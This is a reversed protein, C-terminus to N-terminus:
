GPLNKLSGNFAQKESNIRNSWEQQASESSGHITRLDYRENCQDIKQLSRKIIAGAQSMWQEKTDTTLQLIANYTERNGLATIDYHGQEHNLLKTSERGKVVWSKSDDVKLKISISDTRIVGEEVKYGYNIPAYIFIEADEAEGSHRHSHSSVKVVQRFEDWSIKHQFGDLAM